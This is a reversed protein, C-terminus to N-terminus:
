DIMPPLGLGVLSLHIRVDSIFDATYFFIEIQCEFKVVNDEMLNHGFNQLTTDVIHSLVACVCM